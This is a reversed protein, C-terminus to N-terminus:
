AFIKIGRDSLAQEIEARNPLGDTILGESVCLLEVGIPTDDEAYDIRREKDLDRGYSYPADSLYIYIADAKRDYELKM